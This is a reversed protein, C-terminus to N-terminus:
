ALHFGHGLSNSANRRIVATALMEGYSLLTDTPLSDYLPNMGTTNDWTIVEQKGIITSVDNPLDTCKLEPYGNLKRVQGYLCDKFSM